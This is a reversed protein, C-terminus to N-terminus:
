WRILRPVFLRGIAASLVVVASHWLGIHVIDNYICHFSFAFIGFSGAAIGSLLGAREPSTPAGRRLWLVLTGFTLLGLGSGLMLCDFGHEVANAGFANGGPGMSSIAAVLPLLAVMSTAWQWGDHHNGVRPRSMAIVTISAALGLMLFLGAALLFVPNIAASILDSRIGFLLVVVALTVALGVLVFVLGSAFRLPKVPELSDILDDILATTPKGTPQNNVQPM